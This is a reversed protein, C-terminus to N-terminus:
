NLYVTVLEIKMLDWDHTTEACMRLWETTVTFWADNVSSAKIKLTECCLQVCKNSHYYLNFIFLKTM